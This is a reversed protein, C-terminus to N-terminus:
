LTVPRIGGGGGSHPVWKACPPYTSCVHFSIFGHWPHPVDTPFSSLSFPLFLAFLVCWITSTPYLNLRPDGICYYMYLSAPTASISDNFTAQLENIGSVIFLGAWVSAPTVSIIDNLNSYLVGLFITANIETEPPGHPCINPHFLRLHLTLKVSYRSHNILLRLLFHTCSSINYFFLFPFWTFLFWGNLLNM